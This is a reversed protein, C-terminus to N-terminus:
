KQAQQVLYDAAKDINYDYQELAALAADRQYGMGTLRKLIPDDHETGATLARGLTPKTPNSSSLPGASPAQTTSPGGQNLGGGFPSAGHSAGGSSSPPLQSTAGGFNLAEKPPIGPQPGAGNSAGPTSDLGAFIADWDHPAAAAPQQAEVSRASAQAPGGVNQEFDNFRDSTHSNGMQTRQSAITNSKSPAPSDFVPNFEDLGEPHRSSAAFDVDGKDDAEKADALDAFDRDFDDDFPVKSPPQPQASSPSPGKGVSPHSVASQYADSPATSLPTNSLPPSSSFATPASSPAGKSTNSGGFLAQGGTMQPNYSKEAPEQASTPDQRSPLLGTFEAPFHSEGVRDPDSTAPGVTQDYTPPSKQAGPTPPQGIASSSETQNMVPRPGFSDARSHSVGTGPRSQTTSGNAHASSGQRRHPSPSTFNDDFGHESQSDSEEDNGFEEIPPFEKNFKTPAGANTGVSGEASSGGTHQREQPQKLAGFGAFAADFDEKAATPSRTQEKGLMFSESRSGQMGEPRSSGISRDSLASEGTPTTQVPSTPDVPFAGPIADGSTTSKNFAQSSDKREDPKLGLRQHNSSAPSGTSLRSAPVLTSDRGTEANSSEPQIGGLSEDMEQRPTAAASSAWNTPTDLGSNDNGGYRSAPASVKVSSSFSDARPVHDRFPLYDSTIQGSEPPARVEPLPSDRQSFSPPSVAGPRTGPGDPNPTSSTSPSAAGTPDQGEPPGKAGGKAQGPAPRSSHPPGFVSDFTSQNREPAAAAVPGPAFPGPSMTNDAAASPSRRFFPNTSQSASSPAPSAGVTPSQAQSSSSFSRAPERTAQDPVHSTEDIEGQVRDREAENTALQKKNIAVLGKQQRADSRLKELQPRLQAIDTNVIRMREKLNANEQQDAELATAVQQHQVRLDEYTGEVMAIDQQLKRTEARSRALREDLEKVERVEREYLARLESLRAEFQRKQATAGSLEQETSPRKTKVEQMQTALTGVQNSLNALETTEATLKKSVEPDNDGLLDDMASTQSPQMNRTSSPGSSNSGGTANSNIMTQGFSSSPVFPKFISQTTSPSTQPAVNMPSPSSAKDIGGFVDEKVSRNLSASSASPDPVPAPSSSFADLGFLDESAPKATAYAANDFAPATPQAPPRIQQRMSPPILNPPLSAPLMGRGDQTGRQQRILYMAVAFEDRNLHGESNIDALDWIQALIEEPLRSNGFFHVAEDGTIFGRGAKDLDAFVRDFQIKDRPNIVWDGGTPQTSQPPTGFGSRAIPSQTRQPGTGSFQRPIASGTAATPSIAAYPPRPPPARRSAAEYLGPPLIAPLARLAGSKYSALLHMAIVFETVGLAGRQETDALNWIRGLVDNPLRAKEFIQKAQDGALIGHQAGSKDFLTSYENVKDSNLPPVRIPGGSSQPQLSTVPQLPPPNAIGAFGEFKPIPGPRYALEASPERGSQVHGILRLVLGFGAPTLFGRNETDAIRPELRSKEFFKVAVDGTVVGVNETDAAQFLQGFVRKEDPTLNLNPNAVDTVGNPDAM